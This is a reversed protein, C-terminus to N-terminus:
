HGFFADFFQRDDTWREDAITELRELLDADLPAFRKHVGATLAERVNGAHVIVRSPNRREPLNAIFSPMQM